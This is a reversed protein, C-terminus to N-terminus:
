SAVDPVSDMMKRGEAASTLEAQQGRMPNQTCGPFSGLELRKTTCVGGGGGGGTDSRERWGQELPSTVVATIAKATDEM